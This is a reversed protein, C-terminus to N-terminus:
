DKKLGSMTLIKNFYYWTKYDYEIEMYKHIIWLFM